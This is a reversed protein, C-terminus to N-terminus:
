KPATVVVVARCSQKGKQSYSHPFSPDFYTSDGEELEVTENEFSLLLRGRIVYILEGGSHRHPATAEAGPEFTALYADMRRDTVPFDLSEFWYTPSQGDTRNPLRLRDAQRVVAARSRKAEDEFFHDLGVGFVTAIRMLTPLTPILQGNEIKSLLGASMGTHDGLRVLSLEKSKRLRRIKPGIEYRELGLTETATEMAEDGIEGAIM